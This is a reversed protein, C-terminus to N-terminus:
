RREVRIGARIDLHVRQRVVLAGVRAPTFWAEALFDRVRDGYEVDNASVVRVTGPECRGGGGVICEVTARFTASNGVGMMRRAMSADMEPGRGGPIIRARTTVDKEEYVRDVDDPAGAPPAAAPPSAIPEPGVVYEHQDEADATVLTLPPGVHSEGLRVRYTGPTPAALAFVGDVATTATAYVTDRASDAGPILRVTLRALPRHTASDVVRGTVMQGTVVAPTTMVLAAACARPFPRACAALVFRRM